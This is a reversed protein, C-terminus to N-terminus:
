FFTLFTSQNFAQSQSQGKKWHLSFVKFTFRAFLPKWSQVCFIFMFFTTSNLLQLTNAIIVPAGTIWFALSKMSLTWYGRSATNGEATFHTLFDSFCFCCHILVIVFCVLCVFLLLSRQAETSLFLLIFKVLDGRGLSRTYDLPM